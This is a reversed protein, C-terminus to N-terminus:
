HGNIVSLGLGVQVDRERQEIGVQGRGCIGDLAELCGDDAELCKECSDCDAQLRSLQDRM